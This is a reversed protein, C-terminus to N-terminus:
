ERLFFHEGWNNWEGKEREDLITSSPPKGGGGAHKKVKWNKKPVLLSQPEIGM